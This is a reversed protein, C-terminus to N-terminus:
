QSNHGLIMDQKFFFRPHKSLQNTLAIQLKKSNYKQINYDIIQLVKQHNFITLTGISTNMCKKSEM